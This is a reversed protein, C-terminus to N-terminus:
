FSMILWFLGAVILAVKGSLIFASNGYTYPNATCSYDVDQTPVNPCPSNCTFGGAFDAVVINSSSRGDSVGVGVSTFGNERINRRNTKSDSLGDIVWRVVIEEEEDYLTMINEGVQTWTGVQSLRDQVRSGSCGVYPNILFSQQRLYNAQLQASAQVGQSVSLASIEPASMLYNIADTAGTLTSYRAEIISAFDQPNTRAYNIRDVIQGIDPLCNCAVLLSFVILLAKM